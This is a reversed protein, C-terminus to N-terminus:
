HIQHGLPLTNVVRYPGFREIDDLNIELELTIITIEIVVEKKNM